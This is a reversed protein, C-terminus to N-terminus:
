ITLDQEEKIVTTYKLIESLVLIVLGIFLLSYNLYGICSTYDKIQLYAKTVTMTSFNVFFTLVFITLLILSVKRIRKINRISYFENKTISKLIKYVIFPLYAFFALVIIGIVDAMVSMTKVYFPIKDPVQSMYAFIQRIECHVEEGTKENIVTSPFTLAGAVPEVDGGCVHLNNNEKSQSYGLKFGAVGFKISEYANHAFFIVYVIALCISYFKLKKSM